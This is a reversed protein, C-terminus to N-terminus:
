KSLLVRIHMKYAKSELYEFFRKVGYWQKNWNGKWQPSGGIIFDRQEANLQSWPTDRPIGAEGAYKLMDEYADKWAPTMLTKIAGSRLTKRHDPIVLDYDVGIVRGFGRCTDCAGMASNFSFLAPQPDTYRLDSDPCHLGTSFRWLTPEANDALVYVNVRGGGRKLAMEIAEVARVKETAHIRFRDAVVDLVRIAGVSAASAAASGGTPASTGQPPGAASPRSGTPSEVLREAQVRTFGSASLWQEIEEPTSVAPLEVPFTLVVRPDAEATRAMLEAYITEPTDHRVRQATQRDFLDAARAYLLKLHDNLETMTGVTSRSTRVPNTQDIAIAPPVGDVRDVAPRDMRDLFQRAYASFTEVYRRQGEAYLTDFVLSSKGSGSPGTVVTMEGTRIDLDLNKLNHQRAGRIRILGTSPRPDGSSM